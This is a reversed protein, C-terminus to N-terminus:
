IIKKRYLAYGIIITGFVSGLTTLYSPIVGKSVLLTLILALSLAIPALKPKMLTFQVFLAGFLAPLLNNLADIVSPPLMGMLTSGGIIGITLIVVNVIVSVGMGITAIITGEDTGAEVKAASQAMTASPIRLNSINGSLFAMYTGPIGVIPFYSIPEIVWLVGVASAIPIFGGIIMSLSPILKFYLALVLAPGFSLLVGLWNTIKGWKIIYKIFNEEFIQKNEM